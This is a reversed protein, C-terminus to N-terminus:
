EVRQRPRALLQAGMMVVVCVLVLVVALAAAM